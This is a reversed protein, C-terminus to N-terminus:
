VHLNNQSPSVKHFRVQIQPEPIPPIPPVVDDVVLPTSTPLCRLSKTFREKLNMVMREKESLEVTNMDESDEDDDDEDDSESDHESEEAQDEDISLNDNDPEEATDADPERTLHM